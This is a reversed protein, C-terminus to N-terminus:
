PAIETGDWAWIRGSHEPSFNAMVKLMSAVAQQPEQLQGAKLHRQFPASLQSDVTGPHLGAIVVQKNKRGTEIALNKLLMNLAAKSSRYAYWGGLRNDSISGVRASLCAFISAQTLDLVPLFHKAVLLPGISNIAYARLLKDAALDRLAKEPQQHQDHLLGSAVLVLQLPSRIQAAAEAISAEETLELSLSSIKPHQWTQASRALAYIQSVGEDQALAEVFARGISGNAGIVAANVPSSFRQSIPM